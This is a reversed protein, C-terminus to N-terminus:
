FLSASVSTLLLFEVAVLMTPSSRDYLARYWLGLGM